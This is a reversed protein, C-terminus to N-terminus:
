VLSVRFVGPGAQHVQNEGPRGGGSVAGEAGHAPIREELPTLRPRFCDAAGLVQAAWLVQEFVSERVTAGVRRFVVANAERNRLM